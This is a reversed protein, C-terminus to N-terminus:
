AETYGDPRSPHFNHLASGENYPSRSVCPQGPRAGCAPCPQHLVGEARPREIYARRRANHAHRAPRGDKTTCPQDVDARCSPCPVDAEIPLTHIAM